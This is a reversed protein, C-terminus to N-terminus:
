CDCSMLFVILAFYRAIVEEALHKAFAYLVNLVAYCLEVVFM